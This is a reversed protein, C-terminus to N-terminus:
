KSFCHGRMGERWGVSKVNCGMCVLAILNKSSKGFDPFIPGNLFDTSYVSSDLLSSCCFLDCSPRLWGKPHFLSSICQMCNYRPKRHSSFEWLFFFLCFYFLSWEKHRGNALFRMAIGMLKVEPHRSVLWSASLKWISLLSLLLFLATSNDPSAPLDSCIEKCIKQFETGLKLYSFNAPYCARSTGCASRFRQVQRLQNCKGM